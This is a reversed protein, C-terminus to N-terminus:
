AEGGVRSEATSADEMGGIPHRAEAQQEIEALRAAETQIQSLSVEDDLRHILSAELRQAASPLFGLSQLRQVCRDQIEFAVREADVKVAPPTERDRTVRRVRAICIEMESMLRGAVIGAFKPDPELAQDQRIASRDRHVTRESTQLLAAMEPVSVGESGLHMVCRRREEKSLDKADLRQAKIESLLSLVGRPQVAASEVMVLEGDAAHGESNSEHFTSAPNVDSTM